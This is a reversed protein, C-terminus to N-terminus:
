ESSCIILSISTTFRYEDIEPSGIYEIALKDYRLVIAPYSIGHFDIEYIQGLLLMEKAGINRHWLWM